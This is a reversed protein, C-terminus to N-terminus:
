PKAFKTLLEDITKQVRRTRTEPKKADEIALAFEKKHTFSLKEWVKKAPSNEKLAKALDAPPEVIRPAYDRKMEISVIEGSKVNAAERLKKPVVMVYKGAMRVLTSRFAAGNINGCVPVRKSGFVAEVDFPITIGTAESTEHKELLVQFTQKESM